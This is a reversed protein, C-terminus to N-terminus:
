QLLSFPQERAFEGDRVILLLLPLSSAFGTVPAAAM